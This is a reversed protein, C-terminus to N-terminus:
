RRGLMRHKAASRVQQYGNALESAPLMRYGEAFLAQLILESVEARDFAPLREGPGLTEPDARDDHLLLIGGTFVARLARDAIAAEDDDLWDLADASWVMIDLGMARIGLGQPISYEAYPPRYLRVPAGAIQEVTHRAARIRRLAERTTMTLLSQHDDGHLAIEHGDSVIRRVIEPHKLAQNALVFFTATAHRAALVDLIRPTHGPHPGDDYTLALVREATNVCFLGLSRSLLRPAAFPLLSMRAFDGGAPRPDREIDRRRM